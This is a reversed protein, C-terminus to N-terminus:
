LSCYGILENSTKDEFVYGMHKYLAVAHQNGPYVKLRIREAGRARAASHLFHMMLTGYGKARQMPHVAIGLSPVAYGEDWGRLMGYALVQEDNMLVYYLDKGVYTSLRQAEEYTFPHPHFLRDDGALVLARFFEYVANATSHGIQRIELPM